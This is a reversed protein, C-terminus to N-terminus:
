RLSSFVNQDDALVTADEHASPLVLLPPYACLSLGNKMGIKVQSLAMENFLSLFTTLWSTWGLLGCELTSPRKLAESPLCSLNRKARLDEM